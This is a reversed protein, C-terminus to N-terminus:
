RRASVASESALLRVYIENIRAAEQDVDHFKTAKERGRHGMAEALDPDALFPEIAAVLAELDDPEILRGTVGDEVLLPAAGTRTAVVATGSAMAELPTLGFGEERMPAVYLSVRRFWDAMEASPREGLFVVRGDLGARTVRARLDSAFWRYEPTILGTLVLTADPYKPALRIMADVLLDTGKQPRVRGFAGIGFAGPLGTRKWAAARDAAPSYRVTDVGHHIVRAPMDLVEAAKESTAIIEDMRRLLWHTFATHRRQAASTFVLAWRQRLVHKLIVGVIMEDNRRAHWVRRRAGDPPRWGRLLLDRFRIRPIDPPLFPGLSAIPMSRAQRPLLAIITSTVGSYRWHLSPAVVMARALAVRASDPNNRRRFLSKSPKETPEGMATPAVRCAM